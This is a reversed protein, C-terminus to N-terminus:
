IGISLKKLRKDRYYWQVIARTYTVSTLMSTLLGLSLIVAFGRIPGTGIAFLVIAVIFTTLNADLITAFAKDYGAHIAAHPALGNRLEERIREYILVNADVAMGVTLVFGAIGPLTLTAGMISLVAALFILNLFLAINAVVGFFHYYVLMLILILGMGVQLSVMGRHINEKGLSPGVTREELPYIAAPLAGARLLLALNAAEKGDSLGTIQFNNGLANQIVPASIVREERHNKAKQETQGPLGTAEAEAKTEVFVIAMRNGINERTIKHFLSEGGGGLQIQVSPSATQQDFSSLASTISDGSLVVQRKLLIPVGEMLYLKDNLPVVGTEKALQADKESDVLHFELTATGGLIQKARAADQIGPLDVGIRQTGQQQVVAEGIGLENVRNRLISMTQEVTHQVIESQESPALTMVLTASAPIKKILLTPFKEKVQTAAAELGELTPFHISIGDKLSAQLGNYRIGEERLEQAISKMLGELRRTIVTDVDVGLLFHVGGRLDLGQKMPEAGIRSMWNPIAPLLNLAITYHSGLENKILDQAMLQQDPTSFRLEVQEGVLTLSRYPLGKADLIKAVREKLLTPDEGQESSIQIAPDESYLNPLAYVFGVLVLLILFINKYASYQNLM